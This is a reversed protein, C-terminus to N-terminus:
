REPVSLMHFISRLDNVCAFGAPPQQLRLEDVAFAVVTTTTFTPPQDHLFDFAVRQSLGADGAAGIFAGGPQVLAGVSAFFAAPDSVHEIVELAMVVDFREGTEVLSEADTHRYDIALGVAEAHTQAAAIAMAGADIGTVSFGIRSMPEAILGGGCGIDLLRLGEFPRLSSPERGFHGQLEQRIFGLRVPNIWHLARFRGAPDWWAAGEAAFRGVEESDVTTGPEGM